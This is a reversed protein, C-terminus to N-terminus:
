KFREHSIECLWAHLYNIDWIKSLMAIAINETCKKYGWKQRSNYRLLRGRCVKLWNLILEFAVLSKRLPGLVYIADVVLNVTAVYNTFVRTMDGREILGCCICVTVALFFVALWLAKCYIRFGRCHLYMLERSFVAGSMKRDSSRSIQSLDLLSSNQWPTAVFYSLIFLVTIIANRFSHCLQLIYEDVSGNQIKDSLM